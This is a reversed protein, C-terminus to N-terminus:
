PSDGSIITSISTISCFALGFVGFVVCLICKILEQKSEWKDWTLKLFAVCPFLVSTSMTLVGGALAGIIALDNQLTLAILATLATFALRQLLRTKPGHAGSSGM